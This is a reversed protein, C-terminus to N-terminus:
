IKQFGNACSCKKPLNSYGPISFTVLYYPVMEPRLEETDPAPSQISRDRWTSFALITLCLLLLLMVKRM